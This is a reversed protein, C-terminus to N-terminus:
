AGGGGLPRLRGELEALLEEIKRVEGLKAANEIVARCAAIRAGDPTATTALRELERAARNAASALTARALAMSEDTRERIASAIEPRRKWRRLSRASKGLATAAEDMSSGGAVLDVFRTELPSIGKPADGGSAGTRGNETM